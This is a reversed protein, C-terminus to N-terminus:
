LKKNVTFARVFNRSASPCQRAGPRRHCTPGVLIRIGGGARMREAGARRDPLRASIRRDPGAIKRLPPELPARRRAAQRLRATRSLARRAAIPPAPRPTRRAPAPFLFTGPQRRIRARAPRPRDRRRGAARNSAAPASSLASDACSKKWRSPLNASPSPKARELEKKFYHFVSAAAHRLMEPELLGASNGTIEVSIMEASCPVSEGNALQFLLCDSQLAIM